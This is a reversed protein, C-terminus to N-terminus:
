SHFTCLSSPQDPHSIFQTLGPWMPHSPLCTASGEQQHNSLDCGVSLDWFWNGPHFCLIHYLGDSAVASLLALRKKLSIETVVMKLHQLDWERPLM